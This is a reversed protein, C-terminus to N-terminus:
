HKIGVHVDNYLMISDFLSDTAALELEDYVYTHEPLQAMNVEISNDVLYSPLDEMNYGENM